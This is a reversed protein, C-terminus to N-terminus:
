QLGQQGSSLLVSVLPPEKQLTDLVSQLQIGPASFFFFCQAHHIYGPLIPSLFWTTVECFLPM